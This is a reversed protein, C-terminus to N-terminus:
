TRGTRSPRGGRSKKRPLGLRTVARDVTSVSVAAGLDAHLEALTADPTAAVLARLRAQDVDGLGPPRGPNRPAPDLTGRERFRQRIRRVGSRCLGFLEAIYKTPKGEDYLAIIRQRIPRPYPEM